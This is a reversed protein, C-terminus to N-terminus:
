VERIEVPVIECNKIELYKAIEEVTEKQPFFSHFSKSKYKTSKIAWGREVHGSPKNIILQQGLNFVEWILQGFELRTKPINGIAFSAVKAEVEQSRRLERDSLIVEPKKKPLNSLDVKISNTPKCGAELGAFFSVKMDEESYIPGRLYYKRKMWEKWDKEDKEQTM